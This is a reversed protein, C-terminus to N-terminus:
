DHGMPSVLVLCPCWFIDRTRPWENGPSSHLSMDRQCYISMYCKLTQSRGITSLSQCPSSPNEGRLHVITSEGYLEMHLSKTFHLTHYLVVSSSSSSSSPTFPGRFRWLRDGWVFLLALYFESLSSFLFGM